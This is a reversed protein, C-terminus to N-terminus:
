NLFTQFCKQKCCNDKVLPKRTELVERQRKRRNKSHQLLVNEGRHTNEKEKLCPRVIYGLSAQM